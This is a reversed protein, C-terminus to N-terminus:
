SRTGLALRGLYMGDFVAKLAPNGVFYVALAELAAPVYGEAFTAVNVQSTVPDHFAACTMVALARVPPTRHPDSYLLTGERMEVSAITRSEDSM